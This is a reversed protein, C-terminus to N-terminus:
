GTPCPGASTAPPPLLAITTKLSHQSRHAGTM